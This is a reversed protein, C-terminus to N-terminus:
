DGDNDSITITNGLTAAMDIKIIALLSNFSEQLNEMKGTEKKALSTKFSESFDNLKLECESLANNIKTVLETEDIKTLYSNFGASESFCYEIIEFNTKIFELSNESIGAELYDNPTNEINEIAKGLKTIIIKEVLSSITNHIRNQSGTIGIETSSIFEERYSEWASNLNNFNNELEFIVSNIYAIKNDDNADFSFSSEFLLYELSTIGKSSSGISITFDDLISTETEIYTDIEDKDIPWRNIKYHIFSNNIPGVNFLEAKRWTIALTTWNTQVKELQQLTNSTSLLTANTKLLAIEKLLDQNIPFIANTYLEELQLKIEGINEARKDIPTFVSDKSCSLSFIIVLSLISITIKSKM